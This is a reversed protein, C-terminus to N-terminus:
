HNAPECAGGRETILHESLLEGCHPCYLGDLASRTLCVEVMEVLMKALIDKHDQTWSETEREIYKKMNDHIKYMWKNMEEGLYTRQASPVKVWLKCVL